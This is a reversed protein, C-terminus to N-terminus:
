KQTPLQEASPFDLLHSLTRHHKTMQLVLVMARLRDLYHKAKEKVLLLTKDSIFSQQNVDYENMRVKLM